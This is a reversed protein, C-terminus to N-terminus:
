PQEVTTTDIAVPARDFHNAGMLRGLEARSHIDLKRYIRTLHAEVTKASVCLHAAVDATTMGSVALEAVRRETSTLDAGAKQNPGTRELVDRAREAWLPSGM